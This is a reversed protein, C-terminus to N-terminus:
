HILFLIAQFVAILKLGSQRDRVMAPDGRFGRGDRRLPLVNGKAVALVPKGIEAADLGLRATCQVSHTGPTEM